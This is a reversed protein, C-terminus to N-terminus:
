SEAGKVAVYMLKPFDPPAQTMGEKLVELGNRHLEAHLTDFGVMRCSTSAIKVKEGSQEHTREQLDFATNTQTQREAEGDGMTCVLAIGDPKLHERIFTYFGDRDGDEVLMHVVAVAYIFDFKETLVGGVCDLVAFHAMYQPYKKQAYSVAAPSIDTALLNYGNKLLPYADRGEGCGLELIRHQQKIGFDRITKMVIPTPDDYFWQLNLGHIQRYRDDYAKYYKRELLFDHAEQLIRKSDEHTLRELAEAYSLLVANTLEEKPFIIEQDQYEGLFFIVRKRVNISPIEYETVGQFGAVFSPVLHVEEYIERLATEEENEGTEMHGKPFGYHGSLSQVLVYKIEGDIRTYVVAGCSKEYTM